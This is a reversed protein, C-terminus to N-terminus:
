IAESTSVSEIPYVYLLDRFRLSIRKCCLPKLKESAILSATQTSNFYGHM